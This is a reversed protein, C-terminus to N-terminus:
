VITCRRRTQHYVHLPITIDMNPSLLIPGFAAIRDKLKLLSLNERNSFQDLWHIDFPLSKEELAKRGLSKIFEEAHLDGNVFNFLIDSTQCLQLLHMWSLPYEPVSIKQVHKQYAMAFILAGTAIIAYQQEFDNSNLDIRAFLCENCFNFMANLYNNQFPSKFHIFTKTLLQARQVVPNDNFIFNSNM